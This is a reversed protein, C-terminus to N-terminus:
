PAHQELLDICEEDVSVGYNKENVTIIGSTTVTLKTIGSPVEVKKPDLLM